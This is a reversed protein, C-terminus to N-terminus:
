RSFGIRKGDYTITQGGIEARIATGQITAKMQPAPGEGLAAVALCRDGPQIYNGRVEGGAFQWTLNKGAPDGLISPRRRNAGSPYLWRQNGTNKLEDVIVFLGPVGAVGSYDVAFHRTCQIGTSQTPPKRPPPFVIPDTPGPRRPWSWRRRSGREYMRDLRAGVFAQGKKGTSAYLLEGGHVQNLLPMGIRGDVWNTGLGSIRLTGIRSTAQRSLGSPSALNLNLVALTDDGDQWRNRFVFEGHVADLIALPLGEGPAKATVGFPYNKLAYAAQYPYTCDFHQLGQPGCSRDFCWKMAPVYEDPVCGLGMPWRGSAQISISSLGFRYGEPGIKRAGVIQGALLFPNVRALDRGLAIREAHMFQLVGNALAISKRTAGELGRGAGTIGDRLYAVVDREALEVLRRARTLPKGESDPDGLVALAAVGICSMRIANRQKWPTPDITGALMPMGEFLGRALDEATLLIYEALYRRFPGDWADYGLDYALAMGLLRPAHHVDDRDSLMPKQITEEMLVARAEAANEKEGTLQYIAAWNAAMWSARRDTVQSALRLPSRVLLMDEIAKGEPTEFRGRLEAVEERRFILRPHEGPEVPRVGARIRVAHEAIRGSVNGKVTEEVFTGSYSGSFVDGQRTLDIAYRAPGGVAVLDTEIKLGVTLRVGQGDSKGASARGEHHSFNHDVARGWARPDWKGDKLSLDLVLPKGAGAGSALTLTVAGTNLPASLAPLSLCGCVLGSLATKRLM